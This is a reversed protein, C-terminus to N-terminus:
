WLLVDIIDFRWFSKWQFLRDNTQKCNELCLLRFINASLIEHQIHALLLSGWEIDNEPVNIDPIFLQM